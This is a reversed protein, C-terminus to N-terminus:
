PVTRGSFVLSSMPSTVDLADLILSGDEKVHPFILDQDPPTENLVAIIREAHGMLLDWRALDHSAKEVEDRAEQVVPDHSLLRKRLGFERLTEEAAEAQRKSAQKELTLMELLKTAESVAYSRAFSLPSSRVSRIINALAEAYDVREMPAALNLEAIKGVCPNAIAKNSFFVLFQFILLVVVFQQKM